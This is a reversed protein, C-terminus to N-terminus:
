LSCAPNSSMYIYNIINESHKTLSLKYDLFKPLLRRKFYNFVTIYIKVNIYIRKFKGSIDGFLM